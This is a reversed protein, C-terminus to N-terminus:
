MCAAEPLKKPKKRSGHNNALKLITTEDNEIALKLAIVNDTDPFKYRNDLHVCLDTIKNKEIRHIFGKKRIVYDYKKGKVFLRGTKKYRQLEKEGILDLLLKLAKKEAAIRQKIYNSQKHEASVHETRVNEIRQASAPHQIYENYYKETDDQQWNYWINNSSGSITTTSTSQETWKKWIINNSTSATTSGCFNNNQWQQWTCNTNIASTTTSM